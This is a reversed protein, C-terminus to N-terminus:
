IKKKKRNKQTSDDANKYKDILRSLDIQVAESEMHLIKNMKLTNCINSSSFIYVQADHLPFGKNDLAKRNTYGPYLYRDFIVSGEYNLGSEIGLDKIKWWSFPESTKHTVHIEGSPNLLLPSTKFFKRLLEQNEVLENVQGDAGKSVVICPFQWIIVDFNHKYNDNIIKTGKLNTADVEFLVICGMEKLKNINVIASPYTSTVTDISEYSTAIINKGNNTGKAISLSFSFDGDGVLLIKQKNTYLGDYLDHKSRPCNEPRQNSPINYGIGFDGLPNIKYMCPICRITNNINNEGLACKLTTDVIYLENLSRFSCQNNSDVSDVSHDNNNLRKM